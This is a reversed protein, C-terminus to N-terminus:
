YTTPEIGVASVVANVGVACGGFVSRGPLRPKKPAGVYAYPDEPSEEPGAPLRGSARRTTRLLFRWCSILHTLHRFRVKRM